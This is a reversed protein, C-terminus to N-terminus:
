RALELQIAKSTAVLDENVAENLNRLKNMVEFMMMVNRKGCFIRDGEGPGWINDICRKLADMQNSLVVDDDQSIDIGNIEEVFTATNSKYSTRFDLDYFDAVLEQGNTFTIKTNVM